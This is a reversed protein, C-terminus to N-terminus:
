SKRVKRSNLRLTLSSKLLVAFYNTQFCFKGRGAPKERAASKEVGNCLKAYIILSICMLGAYQNFIQLVDLTRRKIVYICANTDLM